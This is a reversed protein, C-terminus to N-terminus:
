RKQQSPIPMFFKEAHDWVMRFFRTLPPDIIKFVIISAAICMFMVLLLSAQSPMFLNLKALLILGADNHLLYLPFTTLGWFRFVEKTKIKKLPQYGSIKNATFILLLGALFVLTPSMLYVGAAHKELIYQHAANTVVLTCIFSFFICIARTFNKNNSQQTLHWLLVGLSFFVGHELLLLRATRM